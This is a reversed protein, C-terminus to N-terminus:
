EVRKQEEVMEREIIRGISRDDTKRGMRMAADFGDGVHEFAIHAMAITEAIRTDDTRAVHLPHCAPTADQV